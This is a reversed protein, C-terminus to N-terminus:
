TGEECRLLRAVGPELDFTVTGGTIPADGGGLLDVAGGDSWGLFGLDLAIRV